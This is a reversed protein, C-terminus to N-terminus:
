KLRTLSQGCYLAIESQGMYGLCQPVGSSVKDTKKAEVIVVNIATDQVEGHWRGYDPRGCLIVTRSAAM